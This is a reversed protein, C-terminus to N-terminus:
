DSTDTEEPDPLGVGVLAAMSLAIAALWWFQWAGYSAMSVALVSVLMALRIGHAVRNEVRGLAVGIAAVVLALLVSGVIGLEVRLQLAANHTHLPLAQRTWEGDRTKFTVERDGGPLERAAELGWGLWPREDIRDVTFQWIMLRHVASPKIKLHLEDLGALIAVGLPAALVGAVAAAIVMRRVSRPMAMGALGAALGVFCALLATTNELLALAGFAAALLAIAPIAGGLRYLAYIAPWVMLALVTAARNLMVPTPERAGILARGLHLIAQGTTAEILLIAVGVATGAALAGALRRRGRRDLRLAKDILIGGAAFTLALRAAMSASRAPDISWLASLAGWAVLAGLVAAALAFSRRVRSPWGDGVLIGLAVALMLPALGLPAAIALPLALGVALDLAGSALRPSRGLLRM